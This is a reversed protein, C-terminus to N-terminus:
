ISLKIEYDHEMNHQTVAILNKCHKQLFRLLKERKVEDICDLSEDLIVLWKPEYIILASINLFNHEGSSFNTQDLLYKYEPFFNLWVKSQKLQSLEYEFVILDQPKYTINQKWIDQNETNLCFNIDVHGNIISGSDPILIGAILKCLTTKGSGNQGSIKIWQNSKVEFSLNQIIRRGKYSFSINNALINKFPVASHTQNKTLDLEIGYLLGLIFRYVNFIRIICNIMMSGSIIHVMDLSALNCYTWISFYTYILINIILTFSRIYLIQKNYAKYEQNLSEGIEQNMLANSKQFQNKYKITFISKLNVNDDEKYASKIMPIWKKVGYHFIIFYIPIAPLFTYIKSNRFLNFQILFALAYSIINFSSNIIKHVHESLRKIQGLEKVNNENSKIYTKLSFEKSDKIISNIIPYILLNIIQPYINVFLKNHIIFFISIKSQNAFAYQLLLPLIGSSFSYFAITIIILIFRLPFKNANTFYISLLNYYLRLKKM